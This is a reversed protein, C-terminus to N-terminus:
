YGAKACLRYLAKVKPNDEGHQAAFQARKACAAAQRSSNASRAQASREVMRNNLTTIGINTSQQIYGDTPLVDQAALPFAALAVIPLLGFVHKM